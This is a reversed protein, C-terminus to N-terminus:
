NSPPGKYFLVQQLISDSDLVYTNWCFLRVMADVNSTFWPFFKATTHFELFFVLYAVTKAKDIKM